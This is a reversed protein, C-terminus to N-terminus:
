QSCVSEDLEMGFSGGAKLAVDKHNGVEHDAATTSISRLYDWAKSYTKVIQPETIIYFDELNGLNSINLSTATFNGAGQLLIKDDVVIFKNHALQSISGNTELYSVPVGAAVLTRNAQVDAGSQDMAPGGDCKGTRLTDDDNIVKVDVGRVKADKLPGYVGGTTLRHIVVKIEHQAEDIMKKVQPYIQRGIRAHPVPYFVIDSRFPITIGRVCADNKRAFDTRDATADGANQMTRLAHFFCLNEQALYERTRATFFLWNDLHLSTGYTSMNASGSTWRTVTEGTASREDAPMLHLPQPDSSESALVIKAHALYGTGFETGRSVLEMKGPACTALKQASATPINQKHLYVTIKIDRANAADCLTNIVAMDSFSFFTLQLSKVKPDNAWAKIEAEVGSQEAAATADAPTCWAGKKHPPHDCPPFNFRAEWFLGNADGKAFPAPVGPPTDFTAVTPPADSVDPDDAEKVQAGGTRCAALCLASAALILRLDSRM